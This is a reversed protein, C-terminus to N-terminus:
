AFLGRSTKAVLQGVKEFHQYDPDEDWNGGWRWGLKEFYTVLESGELITGLVRPDHIAHPPFVKGAPFYPNLKPNIDIAREMAHNSLDKTDRVHRYSFASSNNAATSLNDDWMFRDDSIPIVTQIPFKDKLLLKFAGRVDEALSEHIAVRGAHVKHDFSYYDVDIIVIQALIGEPCYFSPNQKIVDERSLALDVITTDM